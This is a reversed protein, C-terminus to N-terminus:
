FLKIQIKNLLEEGEDHIDQKDKKHLALGRGYFSGKNQCALERRIWDSMQEQISASSKLEGNFYKDLVEYTAIEFAPSIWSAYKYAVLKHIWTGSDKGDVVTKLVPIGTNLLLTETFDKTSKNILFKQPQNKSDGGSSKWMDNINFYNDDDVRVRKDFLTLNKM